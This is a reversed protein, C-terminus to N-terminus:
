LHYEAMIQGSGSSPFYPCLLETEGYEAYRRQKRLDLVRLDMQRNFQSGVQEWQGDGVQKNSVLNHSMSGSALVDVKRSSAAIERACAAGFKRNEEVSAFIPAAVSLVRAWGGDNMYHMPVITGCDLPLTEVKHALVQLGDKGLEAAIADGLEPDGPYDYQMNQIMHPAEHSAYLRRHRTNANMHCGLHSIWHTDFVLFTDAARDRARKGIERQAQIAAARKGKLPGERESILISPVHAIEAALMIQGM